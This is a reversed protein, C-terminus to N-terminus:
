EAKRSKLYEDFCKQCQPDEPSPNCECPEEGDRCCEKVGIVNDKFLQWAIESFEKEEEPM